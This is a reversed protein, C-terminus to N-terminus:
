EYNPGAAARQILAETVELLRDAAYEFFHYYARCFKNKTLDDTRDRRCGGRCLAYYKCGKCHAHIRYSAAVFARQKEGPAFPAEDFVSGLRWAEKCYFDCPYLDGNAEVVFYGGCVGCMACNEPPYGALIDIYNSLHRIETFREPTFDAYWLDFSRKLFAEYADCSLRVGGGEDVCPIFQVNSFGHKKFYAFTADVDKANEDDVVSLINYDVGAEKLLRIAGLVRPLVSEGQADVRYRDNTKRNGDLSVGVLFDHEKFFRTFARDILLGNTQIAYHARAPVRAAMERVFHAFFDLGALTPEGGQFIVSVETPRYEGIRQILMDATERRMVANERGSSAARYFCYGCRLNCLGAAPKILLTLNKM